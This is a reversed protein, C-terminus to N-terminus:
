RAEGMRQDRTHFVLPAVAILYASIAQKTGCNSCIDEAGSTRSTAPYGVYQEGCMPCRKFEM